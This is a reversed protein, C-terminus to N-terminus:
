MVMVSLLYPLGTRSGRRARRGAWRAQAGAVPRWDVVLPRDTAAASLAVIILINFMASGVITGVGINNKPGFAYMLEAHFQRSMSHTANYTALAARVMAQFHVYLKATHQM